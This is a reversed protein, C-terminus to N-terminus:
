KAPTPSQAKAWSQIERCDNITHDANAADAGLEKTFRDFAEQTPDPLLEGSTTAPVDGSTTGVESSTPISKQCRPVLVRIHSLETTLADIRTNAENKSIELTKKLSENTTLAESIAKSNDAEKQAEEAIYRSATTDVGHKYSAYVGCIVIISILIPLWNNRIWTGILLM